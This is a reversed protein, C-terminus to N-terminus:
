KENGVCQPRPDWDELLWWHINKLGRSEEETAKAVQKVVEKKKVREGKVEM